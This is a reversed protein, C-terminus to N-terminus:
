NRAKREKKGEMWREMKGDKKIMVQDAPNDSTLTKTSDESGPIQDFPDFLNREEGVEVVMLAFDVITSATMKLNQLYCHNMIWGELCEQWQDEKKLIVITEVGAAVQKVEEMLLLFHYTNYIYEKDSDNDNFLFYQCNVRGM